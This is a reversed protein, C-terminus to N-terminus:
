QFLLGFLFAIFFPEGPDTKRIQDLPPIGGGSVKEMDENTLEMGAGGILSKKKEKTEAKEIQEKLIGTLKM